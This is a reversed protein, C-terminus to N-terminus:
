KKARTGSKKNLILMSVRYDELQKTWEDHCPLFRGMTALSHGNGDCDADGCNHIPREPIASRSIIRKTAGRINSTSVLARLNVFGAQLDAVQDELEAIRAELDM